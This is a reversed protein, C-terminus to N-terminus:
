TELIKLRLRKVPEFFDQGMKLRKEIFIDPTQQSIEEANLVDNEVDDSAASGSSLILLQVKAEPDFPNLFSNIADTTDRVLREGKKIETPRVSRNTASHSSDAMNALSLTAELYLSRAHATWVWRQYAQYNTLLGSAGAASTGAGGHSKAHIMFTEEMTKDVDNRNGPVFFRAVSIAERKM